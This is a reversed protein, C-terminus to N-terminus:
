SFHATTAILQSRYRYKPLFELKLFRSEWRSSYMCVTYVSRVAYMVSYIRYQLQICCETALCALLHIGTECLYGGPSQVGTGWSPFCVPLGSSWHSMTHICPSQLSEVIRGKGVSWTVDHAYCQQQNTIKWFAAIPEHICFIEPMYMTHICLFAFRRIVWLLKIKSTQQKLLFYLQM